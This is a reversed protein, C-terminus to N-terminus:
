ERIIEVAGMVVSGKLTLEAAPDVYTGPMHFIKDEVGGMVPVIESRVNWDKPVRLTVGGFVATIEITGRESSLYCNTLDIELGGFIATCKGGKFDYSSVKKSEGGFIAIAEMRDEKTEKEEDVEVESYKTFAERRKKHWDKKKFLMLFGFLIIFAPWLTHIHPVSIGLADPLIFYLGIGLPAIGGLKGNILLSVGIVVLLMKWSFVFSPIVFPLVGLNNALLLTGAVILLIGFYIRKILHNKHSDCMTTTNTHNLHLSPRQLISSFIPSCCFLTPSAFIRGVSDYLRLM